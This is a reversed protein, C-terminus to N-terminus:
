RQGALSPQGSIVGDAPGSTSMWQDNSMTLILMGIRALPVTAMSWILVPVLKSDLALSNILLDIVGLGIVALLVWLPVMRARRLAIVALLLGVVISILLPLLITTIVGARDLYAIMAERDPEYAVQSLMVQWTGYGMHGMAGLVLFVAGLHGLAAGRARLLHLIGGAAPVTLAASLM